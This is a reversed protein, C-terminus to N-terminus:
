NRRDACMLIYPPYDVLHAFGLWNLWRVALTHAPDVQVILKPYVQALRRFERATQRGFAIPCEDVVPTTLMWVFCEASTLAAPRWGWYAVPRGRWKVVSTHFSNEISWHLQAEASTGSLECEATDAARLVVDRPLATVQEVCLIM